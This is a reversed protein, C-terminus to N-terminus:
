EFCLAKEPILDKEKYYEMDGTSLGCEPCESFSSNPDVVHGCPYFAIITHKVYCLPLM